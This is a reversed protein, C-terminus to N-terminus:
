SEGALKLFADRTQSSLHFGLETLRIVLPTVRPLHGENRARLIVGLTGTVEVGILGAHRRALGDDLILLTSREHAIAIAESEGRGLDTALGLLTVNPSSVVTAWSLNTVRPVDHGGTGGAELEDVVSQPVLVSSYLAGLIEICGLQHLYLLPSTNTVVERMPSTM